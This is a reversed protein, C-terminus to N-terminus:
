FIDGGNQFMKVPEKDKVSKDELCICMTWLASTNPKVAGQVGLMNHANCTQIIIKFIVEGKTYHIAPKEPDIVQGTPLLIDQERIPINTDKELLVQVASVMVTDQICYSYLTDNTM